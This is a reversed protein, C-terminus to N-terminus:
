DNPAGAKIWNCIADIKEQCLPQGPPMRVKGNPIAASGTIKDWLYSNECTMDTSVLKKGPVQKSAVGVLSAYAVDPTLKLGEKASATNPHCSSFAACSTKFINDAIWTYDSHMTAEACSPSADAPGADVMPTDDGTDDGMDDDGGCAALAVLAPVLIALALSRFTSLKQKMRPAYRRHRDSLFECPTVSRAGRVVRRPLWAVM